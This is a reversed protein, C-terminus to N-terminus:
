GRGFIPPFNPGKGQGKPPNFQATVPVTKFELRTLYEIGCVCYDYSYVMMRVSLAATQPNDLAVMDQRLASFAGEPVKGAEVAVKMAIKSVTETSGCIPCKKVEHLIKSEPM